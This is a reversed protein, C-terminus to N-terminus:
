AGVWQPTRKEAFARPGEKADASDFNRAVLERSLAWSDAENLLASREAVERTLRIALPGNAAIQEAIRLAGALAEGPETLENVFGLAYGREASIPAGTLLMQLAIQRPLVRPLRFMGGGSPMLGWRVESLAFKAARSAVTMDCSLIIEMGGGFAGGDVAAILPKAHTRSVISERKPASDRPNGHSGVEKLDAGACFTAGEAAIIGVRVDPDQDIQELADFLAQELARSIANRADPRDLTVIAVAGRREYRVM